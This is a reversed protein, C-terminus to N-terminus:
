HTDLTITPIPLFRLVAFNIIEFRFSKLPQEFKVYYFCCLSNYIPKRSFVLVQSPKAANM